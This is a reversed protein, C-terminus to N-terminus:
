DILVVTTRLHYKGLDATWKVVSIGLYTTQKYWGPSMPVERTTWHNIIQRGIYPIHTQDRTLSSLDWMSQLLYVWTSFSSLRHAVVLSDTPWLSLYWMVWHLDQAAVLVRHLWIIFYISKFSMSEYILKELNFDM